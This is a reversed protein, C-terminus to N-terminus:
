TMDISAGCLCAGRRENMCPLGATEEFHSYEIRNLADRRMRGLGRTDLGRIGLGWVWVWGDMWDEERGIRM